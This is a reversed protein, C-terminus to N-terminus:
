HPSFMLKVRSFLRYTKGAGPEWRLPRNRRQELPLAPELEEHPRANFM